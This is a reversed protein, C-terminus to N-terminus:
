KLTYHQRVDSVAAFRITQHAWCLLRETVNEEWDLVTCQVTTMTVLPRSQAPTQHGPLLSAQCDSQTLHLWTWIVVSRLGTSLFPLATTGFMISSLCAPRKSLQDTGTPKQWNAGWEAHSLSCKSLLTYSAYFLFSRSLLKYVTQVLVFIIQKQMSNLRLWGCM